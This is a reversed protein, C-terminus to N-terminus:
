RVRISGSFSQLHKQCSDLKQAAGKAGVEKLYLSTVTIYIKHIYQKRKIDGHQRYCCIREVSTTKMKPLTFHNIM